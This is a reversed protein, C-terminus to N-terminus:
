GLRAASQFGFDWEPSPVQDVHQHFSALLLSARFSIRQGIDVNERLRLSGM